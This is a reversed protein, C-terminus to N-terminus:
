DYFTIPVNINPTLDVTRLTRQEKDVFTEFIQQLRVMQQDIYDLRFTIALDRTTTMTISLPQSLDISRISISNHLEETKDIADLIELARRLTDEDVQTGPQLEANTLGIIEPMVPPVVEGERPKLVMCDRDLYFTERTGLDTNIGVIKVVPQREHLYIAVRDPFHREVRASSVYPLKELDDTMRGLDLTWLNQGIEIGAAQRINRASFHGAPEIEIRKLAYRPNEYLLHSAAFGLGVHLGFALLLLVTMIGVSWAAVGFVQQRSHRKRVTTHLLNIQKQRTRNRKPKVGRGGRRARGV